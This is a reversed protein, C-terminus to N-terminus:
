SSCRDESGLGTFSQETRVILDSGLGTFSQETRRHAGTRRGLVLLVKNLGRHSEEPGLGSNLGGILM